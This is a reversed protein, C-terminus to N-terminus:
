VLLSSTYHRLSNRLIGFVMGIGVIDVNPETVKVVIM